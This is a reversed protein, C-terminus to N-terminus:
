RKPGGIIILQPDKTPADALMARSLATFMAVPGDIKNASDKGGAKSPRIEDNTDARKTVVNAIMWAFAPNGDHQLKQALVLRETMKMAADMTPTDQPVTVILREARDAGVRTELRRRLSQQMQSALARDFDVEQVNLQDILSLIEDEIRLFDAQNGDTKIIHRDRVFTNMQAIPSKQVAAEPLFFRGMVAYTDASLKFLLALAAIDRVEALDVGVWCRYKKLAELTLGPKACTNWLTASMWSSETRIWVNFHKTLINNEADQSHQAEHIKRELDDPQVSVGFNPNAKRQITPQRMDDGTDITYNVGFFAEDVAVGDLVKELYGMKEHCIGGVEVGATTIALILPQRQAGTATDIVDWVARTKHAHLEDVIALLINLGDLSQADASLPSFKAGTAPISLTRTTRSGLRVGFAELFQPSRRAMEWAIEAVIKAQDRTTAASYCEGSTGETAFLYLAVIAGLVSKGNKRPVLVLGIRFRRLGDTRLWGFLVTLVWCQWPELVIPNWIAREQDDYGRIFCIDAPGKVHPLLEAFQCIKRASDPDFRYPFADTEQRDLDRRNRECARKVWQCAPISGALVGAQYDAAMSLHDRM